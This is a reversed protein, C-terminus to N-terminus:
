PDQGAHGTSITIVSTCVYTYRRISGHAPSFRSSSSSGIPLPPGRLNTTAQKSPGRGTRGYGKDRDAPLKHNSGVYTVHALSLFDLGRVCRPLRRAIIARGGGGRWTMSDTRENQGPLVRRGTVTERMARDFRAAVKGLEKLTFLAGHVRGATVYCQM